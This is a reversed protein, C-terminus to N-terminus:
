ESGARRSSTTIWDSGEGKEDREELEIDTELDSSCSNDDKEDAYRPVNGDPDEADWVAPRFRGDHHFQEWLWQDAIYGACTIWGDCFEMMRGNFRVAPSPLQSRSLRRTAIQEKFSKSCRHCPHTFVESMNFDIIKVKLRTEIQAPTIGPETADCGLLMINRPCFDHHCIGVHSLLSEAVLAKRLVASRLDFSLSRADIDLMTRGRLLEILILPVQRFITELKGSGKMVTEVDVTFSGYYAPTIESPAPLQQLETYAACECAFDGDANWIVNEKYGYDNVYRYYFPDYIKAVMCNNVVVVQAGRNYGTKIIGTITLLQKALPLATGGLPPRSVCFEPQSLEKWDKRVQPLSSMDDYGRGGFPPPPEHATAKVKLGVVYPLNPKGDLNRDSNESDEVSLISSWTSSQSTAQSPTSSGSRSAIPKSPVDEAM